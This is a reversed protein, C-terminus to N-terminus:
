RAIENLTKVLMKMDDTRVSVRGLLFGQVEGDEALARVNETDVSGGYLIKIKRSAEPVVEQVIKRIFIVTEHVLEPALAQPGGVAWVPEYAIVVSTTERITRGKLASLIQDRLVHTYEGDEDREKEGICLIPILKAELARSIKERVEENSEKGRRESHGVIAYSAGDDKLIKALVDGTHAGETHPSVDQTAAKLPPLDALSLLPTPLALVLTHKSKKALSRWAKALLDADKLSSLYAKTNGVILM